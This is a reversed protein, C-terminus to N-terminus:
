YEPAEHTCVHSWRRISTCFPTVGHPAATLLCFRSPLGPVHLIEARSGVIGCELAFEASRLAMSRALIGLIRILRVVRFVLILVRILIVIVVVLVSAPDTLRWHQPGQRLRGTMRQAM